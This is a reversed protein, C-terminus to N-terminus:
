PKTMERWGALDTTVTWDPGLEDAIAHALAAGEAEWALQEVADPFRSRAENDEEYIADFADMWAELRDALTESLGIDEADVAKRRGKADLTWLGSLGLWAPAILLTGSM